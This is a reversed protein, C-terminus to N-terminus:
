YNESFILIIKPLHQIYIVGKKYWVLPYQIKGSFHLSLGGRGVENFIRAVKQETLFHLYLEM